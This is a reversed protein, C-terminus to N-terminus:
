PLKKKNRKMQKWDGHEHLERVQIAAFAKSSSKAEMILFLQQNSQRKFFM